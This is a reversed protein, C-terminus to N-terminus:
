QTSIRPLGLEMLHGNFRTEYNIFVGSNLTILIKYSFVINEKM